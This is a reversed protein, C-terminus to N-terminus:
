SVGYGCHRFWGRADSATVQEIVMALAAELAELTRAGLARLLAKLKSWCEEIPNLEPSYRPLFLLQCGAAEIMQRVEVVRHPKLNDLVVVQGARLVPVLVERVFAIFSPTDMTRELTMAARIGEVSLGGMVSLKKYNSPASAHARQGRLARAYLRTLKTTIGTEDLFILDEIPISQVKALYV